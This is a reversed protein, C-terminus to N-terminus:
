SYITIKNENKKFFFHYLLFSFISFFLFSFFLFFNVKTQQSCHKLLLAIFYRHLSDIQKAEEPILNLNSLLTGKSDTKQKMKEHYKYIESDSGSLLDQLLRQIFSFFLNEKIFFFIIINIL